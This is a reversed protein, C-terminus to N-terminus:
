RLHIGAAGMDVVERSSTSVLAAASKGSAKIARDVLYAGARMGIWRRGDVHSKTLWYTRDADPPLASLETVWNMVEKPYMGWPPSAGAADREFVTAMGETVVEDMLSESRGATAYRVLHHFEHFLTARLERQITGSVGGAHNPDVIWGVSNPLTAYATEGTEPIVRTGAQVRLVLDHPLAPLLSRVEIATADAVTQIARRESQSFHYGDAFFFEVAVNQKACSLCTMALLVNTCRSLTRCADDVRQM